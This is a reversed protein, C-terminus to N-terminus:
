TLGESERADCGTDWEETVVWRRGVLRVLGARRCDRLLAWGRSRHVGAARYARTPRLGNAVARLLTATTEAVRCGNREPRGTLIGHRQCQARVSWWSRGLRAAMDRITDGAAAWTRVQALEKGTWERRATRLTM